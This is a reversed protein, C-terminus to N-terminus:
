AKEARALLVDLNKMIREFSVDYEATEKYRRKLKEWDFSKGRANVLAMCDEIDVETGRFMKTIVLDYDNLASVSIKKFEKILISNGEDLPSELLETVYVKKGPFLDFVFGDERAWGMGTRKKYGLKELINLLTKYEKEDPVLFDVDKTSPKLDQVTLATGGCAVLRLRGPIYRDWGELTDWLKQKNIRYEM